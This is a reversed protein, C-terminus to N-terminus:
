KKTRKNHPRKRDKKKKATITEIDALNNLHRMDKNFKWVFMLKMLEEKSLNKFNEEFLDFGVETRFDEGKRQIAELIQNAHDVDKKVIKYKLDDVSPLKSKPITTGIHKELNKISHEHGSGIITYAHGTLGARGTRGIRHVYSENDRPLGFNFVHTLSDVDIGRAAVDTCVLINVKKKKFSNMAHDRELQGMDGNLVDVSLGRKKLNDGVEKTEIKTRCFVIGYLDDANDILRSLAEKMHKERVVFYEQNISDKSLSKKEIKEVIAKKFSNEILKLVQNPMTASFMILQRNGNFEDLAYHVDEVFGMKLMEDAEDLVCFKAKNLKIINKQILDIVRGPTGVIIHPNTKRITSIQGEYEVGGYVCTSRVETYKAFKSIEAEVQNALERTPTLILAQIDFSKVNLKELLPIVFAATKGTGTQAQGVFDQNTNLLTPIAKAQIETPIEFKLDALAKNINESLNLESFNM